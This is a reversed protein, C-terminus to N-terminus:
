EGHGLGVRGDIFYLLILHAVPRNQCVLTQGWSVFTTKGVPIGVSRGKTIEPWVKKSSVAVLDGFYQKFSCFGSQTHLFIGWFRRHRPRLNDRDALHPIPRRSSFSIRFDLKSRSAVRSVIGSVTVAIAWSTSYVSSTPTPGTTTGGGM